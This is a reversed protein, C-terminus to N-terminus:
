QNISKDQRNNQSISQKTISQKVSLMAGLSSNGQKPHPFCTFFVPYESAQV